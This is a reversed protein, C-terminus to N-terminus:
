SLCHIKCVGSSFDRVTLDPSHPPWPIPGRRGIWSDPFEKDLFARVHRSFHPPAGGSQFVTGIPVHRLSINMMIAPFTDGTVTPEEFLFPGIVREDFRV